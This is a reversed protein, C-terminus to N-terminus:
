PMEERRSAVACSLCSTAGRPCALGIRPVRARHRAWRRSRSGPPNSEVDHDLVTLGAARLLELSTTFPGASYFTPVGLHETYLDGGGGEPTFGFTLLAIGGEVLWNRLRVFVAAHEERPVHFISDYALIADFTAAQFDRAALDGEIVTAIPCAMRARMVQEHSVDVGTVRFGQAAMAVLNPEGNGCGLDLIRAGGPLSTCFWEFGGRRAAEWRRARAYEEAVADYADRVLQKRRDM